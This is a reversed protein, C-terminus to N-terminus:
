YRSREKKIQYFETGTLNDSFVVKEQKLLMIIINDYYTLADLFLTTFKEKSFKETVIRKIKTKGTYPYVYLFLRKESDKLLNIVFSFASYEYLIKYLVKYNSLDDNLHPYEDCEWVGSTIMKSKQGFFMKSNSGSNECYEVAISIKVPNGKEDTQSTNQIYQEITGQKQKPVNILQWEDFYPCLRSITNGILWVQVKRRRAITSILDMLNDVEHPLYGGNTIFEEYIVDTIYPYSESKYHAVGTLCFCSGIKKGRLIKGDKDLAFYIDSRYVSITNYEGKTIKEIPMDMFYKEVKVSKIEERWRRLYGFQRNENYANTLVEEKISYSKGNSREGLLINYESNLKKINKISYYKQESM